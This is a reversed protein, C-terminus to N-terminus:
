LRWSSSQYFSIVKFLNETVFYIENGALLMSFWMLVRGGAFHSSRIFENMFCFCMLLCITILQKVTEVYVWRPLRYYRIIKPNLDFQIRSSTLSDFILFDSLWFRSEHLHFYKMTVAKRPSFTFWSPLTSFFCCNSSLYRARPESVFMRATIWCYTRGFYTNISVTTILQRYFHHIHFNNKISCGTETAFHVNADLLYKLKM